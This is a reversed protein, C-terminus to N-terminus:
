ISRSSTKRLQNSLQDTEWANWLASSEHFYSNRVATFQTLLFIFTSKAAQARIKKSELIQKRLEKIWTDCDSVKSLAGHLNALSRSFLQLDATWCDSFLEIAYQVRQTARDMADLETAQAFENLLKSCKELETLHSQIISNAVNNLSGAPRRRRIFSTQKIPLTETKASDANLANEGLSVLARELTQRSKRRIKKRTEILLQICQRVEHSTQPLVEELAQIAMDQFRIEGLAGAIDRIKIEVGSLSQHTIFPRLDNIALYLQRFASSMLQINASDTRRLVKHSLAFTEDFKQLLARHIRNSVYHDCHPVRISFTQAM